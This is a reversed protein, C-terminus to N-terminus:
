RFFYGVVLRVSICVVLFCLGANSLGFCVSLGCIILCDLSGIGCIPSLRLSVFCELLGLLCVIAIGRKSFFYGAVFCARVCIVLFCLGGDCLCLFVQRAHSSGHGLDFFSLAFQRSLHGAFHIVGYILRIDRLCVLGQRLFQNCAVEVAICFRYVNGFANVPNFGCNGVVRAFYGGHLSIDVSNFGINFICLAVYRTQLGVSFAYFGGHCAVSALYSM